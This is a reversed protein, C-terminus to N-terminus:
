SRTFLVNEFHGATGLEALYEEFAEVPYHIWQGGRDLWYENWSLRIIRAFEELSLGSRLIGYPWIESVTPMGLSLLDAGGQFVFGEYGQVDIWLLSPPPFGSSRVDPLRLVQDLPLSSVQITKRSSEGMMESANLNPKTRIRHDGPNSQSLEMELIGPREGAAIPLCLIRDAIENQHANKRLLSYCKPEPELAIAHQVVNELLLGISIVGINAGVDLMCLNERPVFGKEKLFGLSHLAFWYEYQGDRFLYVGIGEDRTPLTLLGQKTKVTTTDRFRGLM